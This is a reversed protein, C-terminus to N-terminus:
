EALIDHVEIPGQGSATWEAQAAARRQGREDLPLKLEGLLNMLEDRAAGHSFNPRVGHTSEAVEDAVTLGRPFFERYVPREALGTGSRFGLRQGLEELGADMRENSHSDLTSIRNRLVIWDMQIGDALRRQQRAERVIRAYHSEGTVAYTAPDVSALVDFDLFSDNLPTILTNAMSHALRTLHSDSGATDIVIFDHDDEVATLADVFGTFEIAENDELNQTCGRPICFHSPMSLQTRSQRAWHGRNDVYHTLSKQRLDLDLTAVRQGLHLLAIAAHMAITSKGVGGKENGLVIVHASRAPLTRAQVLM